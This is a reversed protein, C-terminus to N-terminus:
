RSRFVFQFGGLRLGGYIAAPLIFGILVYWLLFQWLDAASGGPAPTSVAPASQMTAFGPEVHGFIAGPM